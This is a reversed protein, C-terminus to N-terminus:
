QAINYAIKNGNNFTIGNNNIKSITNGNLTDGEKVVKGDVIAINEGYENSSIGQIQSTSAKNIAAVQPLNNQNFSPIPPLNSNQNYNPIAPLNTNKIRAMQEAKEPTNSVYIPSDKNVFPNELSALDIYNNNNSNNDVQKNKAITNTNINPKTVEKTDDNFIFITAIVSCLFILLALPIIIKFTPNAKISLHNVLDDDYNDKNKKPKLQINKLFNKM